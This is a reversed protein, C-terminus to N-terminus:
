TRRKNGFWVLQNRKTVNWGKRRLVKEVLRLHVMTADLTSGEPMILIKQSNLNCEKVIQEIEVIDRESIVVFKFWSNSMANIAKLTETRYRRNKLNGSNKLKPSCNIQCEQLEPLPTITGNTEIEINWGPLFELLSVIKRQQLLPEGGTIVLRRELNTVDFGFKESWAKEINKSAESFSWDVPERWFEERSKDWTYKTDCWSCALNCFHLRLFVAPEGVTVGEGQLTAFVQDGSVKLMDPKSRLSLRDKSTAKYQGM